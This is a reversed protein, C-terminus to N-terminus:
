FDLVNDISVLRICHGIYKVLPTRYFVFLKQWHNLNGGDDGLKLFKYLPTLILPPFLM